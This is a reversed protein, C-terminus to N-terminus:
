KSTIFLSEVCPSSRLLYALAFLCCRIFRMDLKLYRVNHFQPLQCEILNPVESLV